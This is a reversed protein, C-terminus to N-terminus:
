NSLPGIVSNGFNLPWLSFTDKPRFTATAPPLATHDEGNRNLRFGSFRCCIWDHVVDRAWSRMRPLYLGAFAPSILPLNHTEIFPLMLGLVLPPFFWGLFVSNLVFFFFCLFCLVFGFVSLFLSCFPLVCHPSNDKFNDESRCVFFFGPNLWLVSVALEFRRQLNLLQQSILFSLVSLHDCFSPWLFCYAIIMM